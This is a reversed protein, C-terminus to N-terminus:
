ALAKELKEKTEKWVEEEKLINEKEKKISDIKEKYTTNEEKIITNSTTITNIEKKLKSNEKILSKTKINLFIFTGLTISFVITLAILLIKKM